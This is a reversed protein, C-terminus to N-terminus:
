RSIVAAKCEVILQVVTQRTLNSIKWSHGSALGEQKRPRFDKRM